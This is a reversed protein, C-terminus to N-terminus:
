GGSVLKKLEGASVNMYGAVTEMHCLPSKEALVLSPRITGTRSRYDSLAGYALATYIDLVYQNTRFVSPIITQVRMKSVVAAFMRSRLEELRSEPPEYARGETCCWWYHLAEEQGLTGHILREIDPPLAYDAEPTTTKVTPAGTVLLGRHLLEWVAGNENCGCIITEIPLGMRRAYWLAIPGEFSGSTVAVDIPKDPRVQGAKLLEGFIGFIVAIRVAIRVWNTPSTVCGGDPHMRNALGAIVREFNSDVNHWLEAILTKRGAEKFAVANRGITAEVDWSTLKTGFFLNLVDAVNQGFGQNCLLLVDKKELVPMRMPIFFGGDPGRDQNMTRYATFADQTGRTTVYLM